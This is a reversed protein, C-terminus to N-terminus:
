ESPAPAPRLGALYIDKYSAYLSPLVVPALLWLALDYRGLPMVIRMAIYLAAFIVGGYVLLPLANRVCAILS